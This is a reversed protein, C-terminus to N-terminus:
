LAREMPIGLQVLTLQEPTLVGNPEDGPVLQAHVTSKDLVYWGGTAADIIIPVLGGLVDLIVYGASVRRNIEAGADAHGALRFTVQYNQNKRLDLALPTRGRPTGNIVVEANDPNSTFMVPAPGQNFLTGCGSIVGGVTAILVARSASRM